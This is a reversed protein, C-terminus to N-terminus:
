ANQKEKKKSQTYISQCVAAGQAGDKATGDRIVVPICRRVFDKRAEGKNPTPM